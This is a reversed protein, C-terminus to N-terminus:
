RDPSSSRGGISLQAAVKLVANKEVGGRSKRERIKKVDISSRAANPRLM